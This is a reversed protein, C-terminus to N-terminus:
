GKFWYEGIHVGKSQFGNQGICSTQMTVFIQAYKNLKSKFKQIRCFPKSDFSM